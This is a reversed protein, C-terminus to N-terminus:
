LVLEVCVWCRLSPVTSHVLISFYKVSPALGTVCPERVLAVTRGAFWLGCSRMLVCVVLRDTNLRRRHHAVCCQECKSSVVTSSYTHISCCGRMSCICREAILRYLRGTHGCCCVQHMSSCCDATSLCVSLHVCFLKM